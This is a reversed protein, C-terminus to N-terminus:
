KTQAVRNVALQIARDLIIKHLAEHLECQTVEKLNNIELEGELSTLIIPNPRKIYRILYNSISYDSVLEVTSNGSDLRVVRRKNPRRFPNRKVRHWEDQKVPVVEINKYSCKTGDDLDVSEYTIFWVDDDLKYFKSKTDLGKVDSAEKPSITKILSDLHRRLEETEEFSNGTLTGKYLGLVIEEQAKTLLVSKEYEDLEISNSAGNPLTASYSNLLVDFSNSFEQTTM